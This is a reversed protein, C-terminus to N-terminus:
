VCDVPRVIQVLYPDAILAQLWPETSTPPVVDGCVVIDTPVSSHGPTTAGVPPVVTLV